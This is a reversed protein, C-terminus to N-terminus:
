EFIEIVNNPTVWFNHYNSLTVNHIDKVSITHLPYNYSNIPNSRKFYCLTGKLYIIDEQIIDETIMGIKYKGKKVFILTENDLFNNIENFTKPYKRKLWKRNDM